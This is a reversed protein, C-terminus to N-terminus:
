RAEGFGWAFGLHVGIAGPRGPLWDLLALDHVRNVAWWRAELQLRLGGVEGPDLTGGIAPALLLGPRGFDTVQAVSAYLVHERARWSAILEVQDAGWAGVPAGEAKFGAAPLNTALFLKNRVAIAPAAGRGELALWGLDAHAAVIGFPLGTANLGYGLDYPRGALRGLGSRAGVVLNPLPLPAGFLEMAPGGLVVGVEHRGPELPRAGSLTSCGGLLGGLALAPWRASSM